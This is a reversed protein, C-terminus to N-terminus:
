QNMDSCHAEGWAAAFSLWWDAATGPSPEGAGPRVEGDYGAERYGKEALCTKHTATVHLLRPSIETSSNPGWPSSGTTSEVSCLSPAACLPLIGNVYHIINHTKDASKRVRTWVAKYESSTNTLPMQLHLHIRIRLRNFCAVGQLLM